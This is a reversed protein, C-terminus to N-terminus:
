EDTEKWYKLLESNSLKNSDFRFDDQIAISFLSNPIVKVEFDTMSIEDPFRFLLEEFDTQGLECYVDKVRMRKCLRNVRIASIEIEQYETGEYISYILQSAKIVKM